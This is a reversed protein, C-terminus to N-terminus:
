HLLMFSALSYISAGILIFGAIKQQGPSSRKITANIFQPITSLAPLSGLWFLFMMIAGAYPSKTAIAAAVYTYLWGCPLLITTLGVLFASHKLKFLKSTPLAFNIKKIKPNLLRLGAYFLFLAFTAASIWRLWVFESTLFFQGLGGALAGLASYSVLRGLHYPWLGKKTAMLTAIPGCMGACHWSGLFSASLISLVLVANNM